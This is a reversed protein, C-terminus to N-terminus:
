NSRILDASIILSPKNMADVLEPSLMRGYRNYMDQIVPSNRCANYLLYKERDAKETEKRNNTKIDKEMAGNFVEVLKEFIKEVEDKTFIAFIALMISLSLYKTKDPYENKPPETLKTYKFNGLTSKMNLENQAPQGFSSFAYSNTYIEDLKRSAELLLVLVYLLPVQSEDFYSPHFLGPEDFIIDIANTNVTNSFDSNPDIFGEQEESKMTNFASGSSLSELLKYNSVKNSGSDDVTKQIPTYRSPM